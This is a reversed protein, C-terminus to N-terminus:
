LSWRVALALIGLILVSLFGGASMGLYGADSTLRDVAEGFSDVKNDGQTGSSTSSSTTTTGSTSTTTSSSSTSTSTTSSTTNEGQGCGADPDLPASDEKDNCGDDDTDAKNPDTGLAEEQGNTLGDGDPDGTANQATINGFNDTEWTDNLGDADSDNPDTFNGGPGVFIYNQGAGTNPARDRILGDPVQSPGGGYAEIFLNSFVAGTVPSGIGALPVTLDATGGSVAVASAVGGAVPGNASTVITAVYETGGITLHFEYNYAGGTGSVFTGSTKIFLHVESATEGSIWGALIDSGAFGVEDVPAEGLLAQDGAPDQIEPAEATGAQVPQVLGMAFAGFFLCFLAIRVLAPGRQTM